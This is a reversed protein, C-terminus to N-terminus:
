KSYEKLVNALPSTSLFVNVIAVTTLIMSLICGIVSVGLNFDDNKSTKWLRYVGILIGISIFICLLSVMMHSRAYEDLIRQAFPTIEGSYLSELLKSKLEPIM